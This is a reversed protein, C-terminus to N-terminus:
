VLSHSYFVVDDERHICFFCRVNRERLLAQVKLVISLLLPIVLPILLSRKTKNEVKIFGNRTTGWFVYALFSSESNSLSIFNDDGIVSRM